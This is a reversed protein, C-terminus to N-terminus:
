CFDKSTWQAARVAGSVRYQLRAAWTSVHVDVVCLIYCESTSLGSFFGFFVRRTSDTLRSMDQSTCDAARFAGCARRRLRLARIPVQVDVDCLIVFLCERRSLEGFFM